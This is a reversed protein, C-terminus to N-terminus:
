FSSVYKTPSSGLPFRLEQIKSWLQVNDLNENEGYNRELFQDINKNPHVHIRRATVQEMREKFFETITTEEEMPGSEATQNSAPREEVQKTVLTEIMDM